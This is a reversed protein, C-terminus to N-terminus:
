DDRKKATLFLWNDKTSYILVLGAGIILAWEEPEPVASVSFLEEGAPGELSEEGSDFKVDFKNEQQSASELEKEQQKNVLAILSSYPSVLNQRLALAHLQELNVQQKNTMEPTINMIYNQAFFPELSYHIISDSLIKEGNKEALTSEPAIVWSGVKNTDLVTFQKNLVSKIKFDALAEAISTTVKGSSNRIYQGLAESYSPIHSNIQVLYISTPNAQILDPKWDHSSNIKTDFTGDDTMMLAMDYGSPLSQLVSLRDTFGFHTVDELEAPLQENSLPMKPGLQNNFFYLEVTNSALIHAPLEQKLYTTWDTRQNSYSIDLLLAIKQNSIDQIYDEDWSKTKCDYGDQFQPNKHHPVFFVTFPDQLYLSRYVQEMCPINKELAINPTATDLQTEQNNIILSTQTQKDEYVNRRQSINLLPVHGNALLVQYQILVKQKFESVNRSDIRENNEQAQNRRDNRLRETRNPKRPIPFVRLRYQRPGAQELLAPDKRRVIQKEYTRRAAGKPAVVGDFELNPGLKLDTLIADDPLSFEYFVEQIEDTTNEYEEVVQVTATLNDDAADIKIQRSVVKVHQANKNILGAKLEDNTNTDALAKSIAQQEGEQINQDFLQKYNKTALQRDEKINGKYMFPRATTNFWSQIANALSDNFGITEGYGVELINANDDGLYRYRALYTKVLSKKIKKEKKILKQALVQKQNFDNISSLKNIDDAYSNTKVQTSLGVMVLFYVVAFASATIIVLKSKFISRCKRLEEKFSRFFTIAAMIPAILIFGVTLSFLVLFFATQFIVLGRTVLIIEILYTWEVEFILKLLAAIIIPLFFISLLGLYAFFSLAMEQSLLLSLRLKHNARLNKQKIKKLFVKVLLGIIGVTLSLFFLGVVPTMQRVVFLRLVILSIIPIEAGFFLKMLRAPHQRIPKMLGLIVFIIPTVIFLYATVVVHWPVIIDSMFFSSMLLSSILALFILYVTNYGWYISYQTLKIVKALKPKKM